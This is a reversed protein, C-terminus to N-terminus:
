YQVEIIGNTVRCPYTRIAVRAPSAVADGSVVNFRGNHKPCEIEVGDVFGDTLMARGHTCVADVAYVRDDNTRVFAIQADNITAGIVDNHALDDLPCVINWAPNKM